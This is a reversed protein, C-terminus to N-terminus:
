PVNLEKSRDYIWKSDLWSYALAKDTYVPVSKNSADFVRFIQELYNMRPYMKVGLRNNQYEGHEGIYIVADVALKDGGLTLAEAITPYITAGNMKAIRVGIDTADDHGVWANDDIQDIWVSVIKVQPTVMGEDTPIGLFLKTGIVDAHSIKFYINAIFAVTKMGTQGGSIIQATERSISPIGDEGLVFGPIITLGAATLMSQKIFDRRTNDRKSKM